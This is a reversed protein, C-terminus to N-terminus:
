LHKNRELWRLAFFGWIPPLYFTSFRYLMVAGFAIEEPMGARSLGYVLGGETVGIGGPIPIVGALLSVCVNIFLLEGLAIEYGLARTFTGLAVAFLIETAVNGGFLMVLRRPSHLGRLTTAAEKALRVVWGFVWRRMTPVVLVVGVAIVAVLVVVLLLRAAASTSEDLSLDLSTSTFLLTGLLICAQVIFGSFGDLAGSAMATGPPMGHRQFFRINVAIRAATSPIALNVYSVALQLAYVPGLPLPLPAAGLTSVSQTLRPLQAIVFGLAALWWTANRLADWIESWNLGAAASILAFIALGPLLVRVLSGVTIRRLQQLAPAETGAANAARKRLQDLDIDRERVQRRQTPTLAAPQLYPLLGSLGDSGLARSAATLAEDEGALLVTTMFTQAEDSRRQAVTPAVTAGRFDVFGIESGALMLSHDDCQGHAIGAGHLEALAAWIRDLLEAGAPGAPLDALTTGTPRLVLLADDDTTNGAIVVEDTAVGAQAALLTIFAEHEVQQRRGFRIPSGAERYWVTRWITTVVASDHADRGFVKVVLPGGEADIADVLFFGAAQREAAGLSRTAVGLQALAYRVDDLAPRGGSSGFVLHISSAAITAILVGAIAGVPTSAGLMTTAVAALFVLWRGFRRLPRTLHPSAAIIVAGPIAVRPAPYQPPPESARLSDWVSPWSGDVVRAAILWVVAAVAAALVLDRALATRRRLLATVVVVVALLTPLDACVQWLSRLFGPFSAFFAAAAKSFGAPPTELLSLVILSLMSAVLLIVDTARRARPENAGTAFLRPGRRILDLDFLSRDVPVTDM